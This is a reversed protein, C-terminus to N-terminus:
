EKGEWLFGTKVAKTPNGESQRGIKFIIEQLIQMYIIAKTAKFRYTSCIQWCGGKSTRLKKCM